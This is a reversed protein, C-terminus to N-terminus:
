IETFSGGKIGISRVADLKTQPDIVRGNEIILDFEAALSMTPGTLAILTIVLSQTFFLKSRNRFNLMNKETNILHHKTTAISQQPLYNIRGM